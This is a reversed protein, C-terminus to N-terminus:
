GNASLILQFEKFFATNVSANDLTFWGIKTDQQLHGESTVEKIFFDRIDLKENTEAAPLERNPFLEAFYHKEVAIFPSASSVIWNCM